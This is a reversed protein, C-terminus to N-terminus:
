RRSEPPRGFNQTPPESPYDTASTSRSRSCPQTRTIWDLRPVWAYRRSRAARSEVLVADGGPRIVYCRLGGREHTRLEATGDARTRVYGGFVPEALRLVAEWQAPTPDWPERPIRTRLSV